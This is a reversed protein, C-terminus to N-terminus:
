FPGAVEQAVTLLALLAASFEAPMAALAAHPRSILALQTGEAGELAEVQWQLHGVSNVIGITLKLTVV